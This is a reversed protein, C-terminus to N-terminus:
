AELVQRRKHNILDEVAQILQLTLNFHVDNPGCRELGRQKMQQATNPPACLIRTAM